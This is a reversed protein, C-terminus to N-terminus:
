LSKVWESFARKQELVTVIKTQDSCEDFTNLKETGQKGLELRYGICGLSMQLTMNSLYFDRRSGNICLFYNNLELKRRLCNLAEFYNNGIGIFNPNDLCLLRVFAEQNHYDLELNVSFITDASFCKIKLKTM